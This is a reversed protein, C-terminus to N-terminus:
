TQMATCADTHNVKSRGQLTHALAPAVFCHASVFLGLSCVNGCVLPATSFMALCPSAGWCAPPGLGASTECCGAWGSFVGASQPLGARVFM